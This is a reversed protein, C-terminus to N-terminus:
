QRGRQWLEFNVLAWLQKQRDCVGDFHERVFQETSTKNFYDRTQASPALVLDAVMSKLEKKFWQGVPVTFGVKRRNLIEPPLYPKLARNLLVKTRFGRTLL